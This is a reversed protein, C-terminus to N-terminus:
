ESQSLPDRRALYRRLLPAGAAIAAIGSLTVLLLIPQGAATDAMGGAGADVEDPIEEVEDPDEEVEEPDEEEVEDPEEEVEPCQAAVDLSTTDYEEDTEALQLSIIYTGAEWDEGIEGDVSIAGDHEPEVFFGPEYHEPPPPEFWVGYEEDPDLDSLHMTFNDGLEVCEPEVSITQAFAPGAFVGLVLM